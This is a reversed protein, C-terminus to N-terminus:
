APVEGGNVFKKGDFKFARTYWRSGSRYSSILEKKATDLTPNSITVLIANKELLGTKPNFIYYDYFYNTDSEGTGTLIALDPNGDFNVDQDTIFLPQSDNRAEAQIAENGATLTQVVKGGRIVSVSNGSVKLKYLTSHPDPAKATPFSVFLPSVSGTSKNVLWRGVTDAADVPPGVLDYVRVTYTTSSEDDIEVVAQNGTAPDTSNPGSFIALWKSVEPRSKIIQIAKVETVSTDPKPTSNSLSHQFYFYTGIGILAAVGLIIILSSFGRPKM